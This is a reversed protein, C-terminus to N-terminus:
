HKLGEAKMAKMVSERKAMTSMFKDIRNFRSMDFKLYKTWRIVTFLYADAISFSDGAIFSNKALGDEVLQFREYMRERVTAKFADPTADSWLPGLGKHLETSIFVLWELCRYRGIGASPLLQAEPKSEALYQLIAISETLLVGAEVELAPVYGKPNVEQFSGRATEGSSLDVTETSFSLGLEMMVIHPALSCASPSFYLKM